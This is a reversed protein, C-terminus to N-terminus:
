HLSLADGSAVSAEASHVHVPLCQLCVAGHQRCVGMATEADDQLLETGDMCDRALPTVPQKVSYHAEQKQGKWSQM